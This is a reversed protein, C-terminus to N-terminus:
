RRKKKIIRRGGLDVSDEEDAADSTYLLCSKADAVAEIPDIGSNEALIVPIQELADAFARIAYQEVGPESDAVNNLEISCSLECSGGGYVVRNDKILNRLVCLSDHISRKAEEIIMSSGGRILITVSKTKHGEQIMLMHDNTTGFHLEKILSANGLKSATLEEFRPVIRAGTAMAILEIDQGGVWRVAPLNNQLLLHNAEDDFGWQCLAITAGSAKIKEVMDVFYKQEQEYLKQYDESSEIYLNYKTKPKPPEFACTLIAIKADKVEKPMQPHSMDKDILIGNILQTDELCGGTKGQIKILDFIVDRRELDAVSFIAKLAIEALQEKNKCVVKSSLATMAAEKLNLNDNALIDITDSIKELNAISLDCAKDFGKTIQQPHLGKDLLMSAQELLSGALIVVGTTGDGIENDQSKSLEVLLKATPHEVEMKEVITAGDNTVTVESDQSVLIKDM